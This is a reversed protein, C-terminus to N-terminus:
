TAARPKKVKEVATSGQGKTFTFKASYRHGGAKLRQLLVDLTQLKGLILLFFIYVERVILDNQTCLIALRTVM